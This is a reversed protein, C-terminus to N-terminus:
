AFPLLWAFADADVLFASGIWWLGALFYGFGFWWGLAFGHRLRSVLGKGPESAVGDMLWVLAPMTLFLVPFLDFPPMALASLAGACFALAARKWGWSLIFYGAAREM